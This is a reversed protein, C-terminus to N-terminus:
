HMVRPDEPNRKLAETYHRVAEPYKQQKFFENGVFYLYLTTLNLTLLTSYWGDMWM